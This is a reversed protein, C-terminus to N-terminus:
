PRCQWPWRGTIEMEIAFSLFTRILVIVALIGVSSFTLEVAVTKIIDAAVLFDLGLLIGRAVKLRYAQFWEESTKRMVRLLLHRVTANLAFLMIVGIGLLELIAISWHAMVAVLPHIDILM